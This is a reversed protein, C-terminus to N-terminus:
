TLWGGPTDPLLDAQADRLAAFDYLRQWVGARIIRAAGYFAPLDGGVRGGLPGHLGNSGTVFLVVGLVAAILMAVPYVYLRRTTLLPQICSLLSAAETRIRQALHTLPAVPRPRMAARWSLRDDPM